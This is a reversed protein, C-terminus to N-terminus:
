LNRKEFELEALKFIRILDHLSSQFSMGEIRKKMQRGKQLRYTKDKYFKELKLKYEQIDRASDEEGVYLAVDSNQCLTVVPIFQNMAMAGSFGGGKRFPNVYVDCIQYLAALDNCYDNTIIKGSSNLGPYQSKLYNHQASGVLVWKAKNNILFQCVLDIFTEDMDADLRTGVTVIVFDDDLFGWQGRDMKEMPEPLTLGILHQYYNVGGIGYYEYEQLIEEKKHGGIYIDADSLNVAGGMSYNVIPYYDKLNQVIFSYDIGIALILEPQFELVEDIDQQIRIERDKFPDSYYIDVPYDVFEQHLEKCQKSVASISYYPIIIENPCYAYEDEVFVKIEYEPFFKKMYQAYNLTVMTPAHKPSLLQGAIIAIRKTQRRSVRNIKPSYFSVIKNFIHKRDKFLEPYVQLNDKTIYFLSSILIPYHYQLFENDERLSGLIRELLDQKIRSKVLLSLFYVKETFQIEKCDLYEIFRKYLKEKDYLELASFQAFVNLLIAAKQMFGSLFTKRYLGLGSYFIFYPNLPLLRLFNDDIIRTESYNAQLEVIQTKKNKEGFMFEKGHCIYCKTMEEKHLSVNYNFSEIDAFYVFMNNALLRTFLLEINEYSASIYIKGEITEKEIRNFNYLQSLVEQYKSERSLRNANFDYFCIYDNAISNFCRFWSLLFSEINSMISIREIGESYREQIKLCEIIDPLNIIDFATNEIDFVVIDFGEDEFRRYIQFLRDQNKVSQVISVLIRKM